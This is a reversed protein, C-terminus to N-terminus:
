CDRHIALVSAIRPGPAVVACGIVLGSRLQQHLFAIASLVSRSQADKSLLELFARAGRRTSVERPSGRRARLNAVYDAVKVIKARDSAQCIATLHARKRAKKRRLPPKTLAVVDAVLKSPFSKGLAEPHLGGDELIDHLAALAITDSEALGMEAVVNAVALAHSLAPEGTRRRRRSLSRVAFRWATAAGIPGDHELHNMNSYPRYRLALITHGHAEAVTPLRPTPPFLRVPLFARPHQRSSHRRGQGARRPAQRARLCARRGALPTELGRGLDLQLNGYRLDIAALRMRCTAPIKAGASIYSPRVSGEHPPQAPM